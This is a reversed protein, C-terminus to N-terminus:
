NPSTFPVTITACTTRMTYHWRHPSPSFLLGTLHTPSATSDETIPLECTFGTPTSHWLQPTHSCILGDASFFQPQPPMTTKAPSTGTLTITTKSRTATFTWDPLPLPLEARAQSFLTARQPDQKTPKSPITLTLDALGPNCTTACCMWATKAHIHVPQITPESPPILTTLLLTDKKYGHTWITAMQLKEPSPWQIPGPHWGPPLTWIIQTAVGARGPNLWYTHHHPQHKILLGVTFPAGPTITQHESVLQLSLGVGQYVPSEAARLTTLLCWSVILPANKM